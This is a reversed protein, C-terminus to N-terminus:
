RLRSSYVYDESPFDFIFTIDFLINDGLTPHVLVNTHHEGVQFTNAVQFSMPISEMDIQSIM